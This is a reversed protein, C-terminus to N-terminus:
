RFNLINLLHNKEKKEKWLICNNRGVWNTPGMTYHYFCENYSVWNAKSAFDHWNALPINEM